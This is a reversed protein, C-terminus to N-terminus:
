REGALAEGVRAALGQAEAGTAVCEIPELWTALAQAHRPSLPGDPVGAGLLRVWTDARSCPAPAESGALVVVVARVEAHAIRGGEPQLPDPDGTQLRAGRCVALGHAELAARLALADVGRGPLLLALRTKAICLLAGPLWLAGHEWLARRRLALLLRDALDQRLAVRTAHGRDDSLWFGDDEGHVSLAGQAPGPEVLLPELAESCLGRAEDDLDLALQVGKLEVRLAGPGAQARPGAPPQVHGAFGLLGASVLGSLRAAGRPELPRASAAEEWAAAEVSRAAGDGGGLVVARGHADELALRTGLLQLAPGGCAQSALWLDAATPAELHHLLDLAALPAAAPYLLVFDGRRATQEALRLSAQAPTGPEQTDFAPWAGILSLLNRSVGKKIRTEDAASAVQDDVEVKLSPATNIEVLWPVLDQDVALDFGLLEFAGQGSLGQRKLQERIPTAGALVARAILRRLDQFLRDADGGALKVHDRLLQHTGNHHPNGDPDHELVDPNTLHRFPDHRDDGELSYRRNTLKTFGDPYLWVVLPDINSLLVYFRLTFKYGDILFPRDLYRQVLFKDSSREAQAAEALLSIGEGRALAKPKQIWLAAPNRRAAEQLADYDEPMLFTAPAHLCEDLRGLRGLRARARTLSAALGSKIGLNRMGVIHNRLAGRREAPGASDHNQGVEWLLDYDDGDTRAWGLELLTRVPLDQGRPGRYRARRPPPLAPM